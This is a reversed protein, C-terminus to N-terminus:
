KRFLAAVIAAAVESDDNSTAVKKTGSATAPVAEPFIKNLKGISFVKSSKEYYVLQSRNWEALYNDIKGDPVIFIPYLDNGPILNFINVVTEELNPINESQLEIHTIAACGYFAREGFYNVSAPITIIGEIKPDQAFAKYGIRQLGDPFSISTIYPCGYFGGPTSKNDTHNEIATVRYTIGNNEVTAPIILAGTPKSYGNKSTYAQGVEVTPYTNGDITTDKNLLTYELNGIVFSDAWANPMLLCSFILLIINKKM